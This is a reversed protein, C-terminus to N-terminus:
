PISHHMGLAMSHQHQNTYISSEYDLIDGHINDEADDDNAQLVDDGPEAQGEELMNM